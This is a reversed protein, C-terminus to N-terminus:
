LASHGIHVGLYKYSTVRRDYGHIAVYSQDGISRRDSTTEETKLHTLSSDDCDVFRGVEDKHSGTLLSLTAIDDSFKVVFQNPQFSVGDDTYLTFLCVFFLIFEHMRPPAVTSSVAM